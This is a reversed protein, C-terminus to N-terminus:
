GAQANGVRGGAAGVRQGAAADGVQGQGVAGQGAPLAEVLGQAAAAEQEGAAGAREWGVGTGAIGVAHVGGLYGARGADDGEDAGVGVDGPRM